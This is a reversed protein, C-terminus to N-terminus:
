KPDRTWDMDLWCHSRTHAHLAPAPFSVPQDAPTRPRSQTRQLSPALRLVSLSTPGQGIVQYKIGSDRGITVRGWTLYKRNWPNAAQNCPSGKGSRCCSWPLVWAMSAPANAGSWLAVSGGAQNSGRELTWVRCGAFMCINGAFLFAGERSGMKGEPLQWMAGWFKIFNDMNDGTEKKRDM